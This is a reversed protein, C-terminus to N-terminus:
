LQQEGHHLFEGCGGDALQHVHRTGPLKPCRLKRVTEDAGCIPSLTREWCCWCCCAALRWGNGGSGYPGTPEWSQCWSCAWCCGLSFDALIHWTTSAYRRTSLM